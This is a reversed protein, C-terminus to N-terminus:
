MSYFESRVRWLRYGKLRSPKSFLVILLVVGAQTFWKIIALNSIGGMFSLVTIAFLLVAWPSFRNVYRFRNIFGLFLGHVFAGIIVGAIHIQVFLNAFFPVPYMAFGTQDSFLHAYDNAETLGPKGPWLARPVLWTVLRLYPKFFQLRVKDPVAPVVILMRDIGRFNNIVETIGFPIDYLSMEKGTRTSRRFGVYLTAFVLIILCFFVLKQFKVRRIFHHYLIVFAIWPFIVASRSGLTAIIVTALLLLLAPVKWRRRLKMVYASYVLVAIPLARIILMLAGKGQTFERRSAVNALLGFPGGWSLALLAYGAISLISVTLVLCKMRKRSIDWQTLHPIVNLFGKTSSTFYGIVTTLMGVCAIALCQLLLPLVQERGSLFQTSYSGELILQLPRVVYVLTNFAALFLYPECWDFSKKQQRLVLVPAWAIVMFVLLLTLLTFEYIQM